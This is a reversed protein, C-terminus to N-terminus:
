DGAGGKVEIDLGREVRAHLVEDGAERQLFLRHGEVMDARRERAEVKAGILPILTEVAHM